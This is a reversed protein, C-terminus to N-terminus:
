LMPYGSLIRTTIIDGSISHHLFDKFAAYKEVEAETPRVEYFHYYLWIEFSPNSQAVNWASYSKVEDFQKSIDSNKEACFSRLVDIKGEREWSDTDIVFWM